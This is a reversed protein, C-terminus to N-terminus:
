TIYIGIYLYIRVNFDMRTLLEDIKKLNFHSIIFFM